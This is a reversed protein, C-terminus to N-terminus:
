LTGNINTNMIFISFADSLFDSYFCGFTYQSQKVTYRINLISLNTNILRMTLFFVVAKVSYYFNHHKIDNPHTKM